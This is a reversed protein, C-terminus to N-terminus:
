LVPPLPSEARGWLDGPGPGRDVLACHSTGSASVGRVPTRISEEGLRNEPIDVNKAWNSQAGREFMMHRPTHNVSLLISRNIALLLRIKPGISLMGM